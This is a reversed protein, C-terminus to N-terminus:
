GRLKRFAERVVPVFKKAGVAATRFDMLAREGRAVDLSRTAQGARNAFAPDTLVEYLRHELCRNLSSEMGLPAGVLLGAGMLSALADADRRSEQVDGGLEAARIAAVGKDGGLLAVGDLSKHPSIREDSIQLLPRLEGDVIRPLISEFTHSLLDVEGRLAAMVTSATGQYGAIYEADIGLLHTTLIINILNTSGVESVGFVLARQDAAKLVDRINEFPSDRGSCLVVKNRVIRALITFDAGPDPIGEDVFSAVLLGPGSLLGLTLGDPEAGMLAMAAGAGGSGTINQIVIEAGLREEYFPEILRSYIDYGGGPPFPVIWRVTKGAVQSCISQEFNKGYATSSAGIACAATGLWRLFARRSEPPM